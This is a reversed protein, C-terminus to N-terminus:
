RQSRLEEPIDRLFCVDFQSAEDKSLQPLEVCDNLERREFLSVMLVVKGEIEWTAVFDLEDFQKRLEIRSRDGTYDMFLYSFTARHGDKMIVKENM